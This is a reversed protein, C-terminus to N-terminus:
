SREAEAVVFLALDAGIAAMPFSPEGVHIAIKGAFRLADRLEVLGFREAEFGDAKSYRQGTVPHVLRRACQNGISNVQM